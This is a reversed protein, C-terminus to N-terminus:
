KMAHGMMLSKVMPLRNLVNLGQNRVRKALATESLYLDRLGHTVAGMTAADERRAREYQRLVRMDGIASLASRNQLADILAHADAFGLNAGQGAMPHIAHAADGILALGPQVWDHALLRHLSVRATASVCTLSGLAYGGAAAVAGAFADANLALLEDARTKTVSWVISIHQNPLPLYALISDGHFWQRAINGHPHEAKFNAVIGDSKYDFTKATIGAFDRILSRAGDAGVVLDASLEEGSSLTIKRTTAAASISALSAVNMNDIVRINNGAHLANILAYMLESHEVIHAIATNEEFKIQPSAAEDDGWVQMAGVDTIREAPIRQWVGLSELFKRSGPSLAYVRTDLQAASLPLKDESLRALALTQREILTVHCGRLRQAGLAFALGVPGAGVVVIHSGIHSSPRSNM